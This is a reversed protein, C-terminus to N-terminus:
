ESRSLGYYMIFVAALTIIPGFIPFIGGEKTLQNNGIILMAVMICAGVIFGVSRNWLDSKPPSMKAIKVYIAILLVFVVAIVAYSVIGINKSIDESIPWLWAEIPRLFITFILGFGCIWSVVVKQNLVHKQIVYSLFIFGLSLGFFTVLFYDRNLISNDNTGFFRFGYLFRWMRDMVYAGYGVALSLMFFFYGLSLKKEVEFGEKRRSRKLFQISIYAFFAVVISMLVLEFYEVIGDEGMISFISDSEDQLLM